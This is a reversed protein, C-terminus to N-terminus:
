GVIDSEVVRTDVGRFRASRAGQFRASRAGQFSSSLTPGAGRSSDRNFHILLQGFFEGQFFDSIGFPLAGPHSPM